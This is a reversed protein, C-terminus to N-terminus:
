ALIKIIIVVIYFLCKFYQLFFRCPRIIWLGLHFPFSTLFSLTLLYFHPFNCVFWPWSSFLHLQTAVPFGENPCSKQQKRSLSFLITHPPMQHGPSEGSPCFLSLFSFPVFAVQPLLPHYALHFMLSFSSDFSSLNWILKRWGLDGLEEAPAVGWATLASSVWPAHMYTRWMGLEWPM